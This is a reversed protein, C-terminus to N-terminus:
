GTPNQSAQRPHTTKKLPPIHTTKIISPTNMTTIFFPISITMFIFSDRGGDGGEGGCAEDVADRADQVRECEVEGEVVARAHVARVRQEGRM